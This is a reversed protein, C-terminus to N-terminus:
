SKNNQNSKSKQTVTTKFASGLWSSSLKHLLTYPTEDLNTGFRGFSTHLIQQAATERKSVRQFYETYEKDQHDM